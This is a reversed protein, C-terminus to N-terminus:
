EAERKGVPDAILLGQPTNTRHLYPSTEPECRPCCCGMEKGTPHDEMHITEESIAAAARVASDLLDAVSDDALSYYVNLGDRRDVVLGASRLRMLQQSIYAQRQGTVTELHCVCAEGARLMHLIQLRIPHGLAKMLDSLCTYSDM